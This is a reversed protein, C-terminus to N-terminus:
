QIADALCRKWEDYHLLIRDSFSGSIRGSGTCIFDAGMDVNSCRMQHLFDIGGKQPFDSLLVLFLAPLILVIVGSNGLAVFAELITVPEGMRVACDQLTIIIQMHIFVLMVGLIILRSSRMWRQFEVRSIHFVARINGKIKGTEGSKM